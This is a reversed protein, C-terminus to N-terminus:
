DPCGWSQEVIRDIEQFLDRRRQRARAVDHWQCRLCEGLDDLPFGCTACVDHSREAKPSEDISVVVIMIRHGCHRALVRDLDVEGLQWRGSAGAYRLVGRLTEAESEAHGELHGESDEEFCFPERDQAM